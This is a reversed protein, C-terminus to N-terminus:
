IRNEILAQVPKEGSVLNLNREAESLSPMLKLAERFKVLAEEQKDMAWLTCGRNNLIKARVTVPDRSSEKELAALLDNAEQYRGMVVYIRALNFKGTVYSQAIRSAIDYYQLAEELKGMQEYTYGLISATYGNRELNYGTQAEEVAENLLGRLLYISAVGSHVLGDRPFKKLYEQFYEYAVEIQGQMLASFGQVRLGRQLAEKLRSRVIEQDPSLEPLVQELKQLSDRAAEADNLDLYINSRELESFAKWSQAATKRSLEEYSTLAQDYEKNEYHVEALTAQTAMAVKQEVQPEKELLELVEKGQTLDGEWKHTWGRYFLAKTRVRPDPAEELKKFISLARDPQYTALYALALKLGGDEEFIREPQQKIWNELEPLYTEQKHIQDIRNRLGQALAEERLLPFEKQVSKLVREAEDFRRMKMLLHSLSISVFGREPREPYRTLFERYYREAETFKGSKEMKEAESLILVGTGTLPQIPRAGRFRQWVYQWFDQTSKLFSKAFYYVADATQFFRDRKASKDRLVEALYIGARTYGSQEIAERLSRAAHELLVVKELDGDTKTIEDLALGELSSRYLYSELSAPAEGQSSELAQKLNELSYDLAFQGYLSFAFALSLILGGTLIIGGAIKRM